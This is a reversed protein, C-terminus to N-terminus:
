FGVSFTGTTGVKIVKLLNAPYWAGLYASAQLATITFLSGDQLQVEIPAATEICIQFTRSNGNKGALNFDAPEAVMNIVGKRPTGNIFFNTQLSM